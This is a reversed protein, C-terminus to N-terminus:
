NRAFVKPDIAQDGRIWGVGPRLNTENFVAIIAKTCLDSASTYFDIMRGSQLKTKFRELQKAHGGENDTKGVAIDKPNAHLFALVPIGKSKAYEYEKKTFSVNDDALTGYRGAAVVVYYDCRDIVRKIYDFQQEDTAPFLEMGSAIFGAKALANSLQQREEKLDSFTSSVFVQYVKDM